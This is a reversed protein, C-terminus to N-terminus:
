AANTRIEKLDIERVLYAGNVFDEVALLESVRRGKETRTISVILDVAGGILTGMPASTAEGVLQELRPLAARANNAHITAIGGPHGTNWAKLLTLAAALAILCSCLSRRRTALQVGRAYWGRVAASM